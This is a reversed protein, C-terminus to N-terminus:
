REDRTASHRAPKATGNDGAGPMEDMEIAAEDTWEWNWDVTEVEPEQRRQPHLPSMIPM